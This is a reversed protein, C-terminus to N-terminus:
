PTSGNTSVALDQATLPHAEGVGRTAWSTAPQKTALPVFRMARVLADAGPTKEVRDALVFSGGEIAERFAHAFGLAIAIASPGELLPAHPDIALVKWKPTNHKRRVYVLQISGVRATAEPAALREERVLQEVAAAYIPLQLHEGSALDARFATASLAAGTKFDAVVLVDGDRELRDVSGRLPLAPRDGYALALPADDTDLRLEVALAHSGPRELLEARKKALRKAISADAEVLRRRADADNPNKALKDKQRAVKDQEEQHKKVKGALTEPTHGELDARLAHRASLFGDLEHTWRAVSRERVEKALLAGLGEGYADKLTAKTEAVLAAHEAQLDVPGRELRKKVPEELSRHVVVGQERADLDDAADEDEALGLVRELFYLYPNKAYRQLASVSYARVPVRVGLEGTWPTAATAGHAEV